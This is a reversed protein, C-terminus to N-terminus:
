QARCTGLGEAWYTLTTATVQSKYYAIEALAGLDVPTGDWSGALSLIVIEGDYEQVVKKLNRTQVGVAGRKTEEDVTKSIPYGCLRGSGM